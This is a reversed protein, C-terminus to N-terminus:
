LIIGSAALLVYFMFLSEKKELPKEIVEVDTAKIKKSVPLYKSEDGFVPEYWARCKNAVMHISDKQQLPTRDPEDNFKHMPIDLTDPIGVFSKIGSDATQSFQYM